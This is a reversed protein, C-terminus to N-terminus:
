VSTLTWGQYECAFESAWGHMLDDFDPFRLEDVIDLTTLIVGDADQTPSITFGQDSAAYALGDLDGGIFTFCTARQIM